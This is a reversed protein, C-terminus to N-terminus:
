RSARVQRRQLGRPGLRPHQPAQVAHAQAGPSRGEGNRRWEFTVAGRVIFIQGATPPALVFHPRDRPRKYKASGVYKFGSDGASGSNAWRNDSAKLYQVQFRVYM